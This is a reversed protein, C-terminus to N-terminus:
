RSLSIIVLPHWVEQEEELAGEGWEPMLVIKLQLCNLLLLDRGEAQKGVLLTHM